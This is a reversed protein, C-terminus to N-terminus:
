DYHTTMYINNWLTSLAEIANDHFCSYYDLWLIYDYLCKVMLDFFGKDDNGYCRNYCYLHLPHVNM